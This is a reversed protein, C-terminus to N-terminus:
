DGVGRESPLPPRVQDQQHGQDQDQRVRAMRCRCRTLEEGVLVFFSSAGLQGYVWDGVRYKTEGPGVAAVRGVGGARMVENIAVPAIYSRSDNLWGTEEDAAGREGRGCPRM